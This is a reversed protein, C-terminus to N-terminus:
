GELSVGPFVFRTSISAIVFGALGLNLFNLIIELFFRPVPTRDLPLVSFNYLYVVIMGGLLFLQSWQSKDRAFAKLDKLVLERGARPLPRLYLRLLRDTLGSGAIRKTDSEQARSFGRPYLFVALYYGLSMLGLGAAFLMLLFFLSDGKRLGLIDLLVQSAWYHPSLPSDPSGIAAVTSLRPVTEQLLELWKGALGGPTSYTVLVDVKRDVMENMLAPLRDIRGEAWRAEIVLNQSEVWGLERLRQWM